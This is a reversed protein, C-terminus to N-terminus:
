EAAIFLSLRIRGDLMSGSATKLQVDDVSAAPVETLVAGIFGRIQAYSGTVPFTIRYRLYPSDTVRELKYDGSRLALGKAQAAARIRGLWQPVAATRPLARQFDALRTDADLADAAPGRAQRPATTLRAELLTRQEIRPSVLVGYAVLALLLLGLGVWGLRGIQLKSLWAKM